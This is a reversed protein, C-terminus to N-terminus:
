RRYCMAMIDTEQASFRICSTVTANDRQWLAFSWPQAEERQPHGARSKRMRPHSVRLIPEPSERIATDKHPQWQMGLVFSKKDMGLKQLFSVEGWFPPGSVGDGGPFISLQQSKPFCQLCLPMGGALACSQIAAAQPPGCTGM